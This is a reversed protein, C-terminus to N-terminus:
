YVFPHEHLVLLYGNKTSGEDWTTDSRETVLRSFALFVVWVFPFFSFM